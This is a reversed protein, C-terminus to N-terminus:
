SLWLYITTLVNLQELKKLTAAKSVDAFEISELEFQPVDVLSIPRGQSIAVALERMVESVNEVRGNAPATVIQSRESIQMDTVGEIMSAVDIQQYLSCLSYLKSSSALHYFRTLIQNFATQPPMDQAFRRITQIDPILGATKIAKTTSVMARRLYGHDDAELTTVLGLREQEDSESSSTEVSSRYRGARGAIQKMQSTDIRRFLSGDYKTVTEFIIRKVSLNLGMGVADSAVLIDVDSEPDNFLQAQKARTEPPLGGYIIACKQGTAEEIKRKMAFIMVRSFTILADGKRVKKVDGELSKKEVELAGLRSYRNVVVEDGVSAALTQLLEVTREEGCLHIERARVGLVATTWAWGRAADSIMQIEDIVAVEYENNLDIMEVTSSTTRARRGRDDEGAIVEEGTVLNCPIGQVRFRDYIERALLRLPGAYIGSKASALRQLATYTKGSNTPGVHLIWKRKMARAAPFSEAPHTLSAIQRATTSSSASFSSSSLTREALFNVFCQRIFRTTMNHFTKRDQLSLARLTALHPRSPRHLMYEDFAPAHALSYQNEPLTRIIAFYETLLQDYLEPDSVKADTM